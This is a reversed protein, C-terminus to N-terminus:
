AMLPIAGGMKPMNSCSGDEDGDIDPFMCKNNLAAHTLSKRWFQVAETSNYACTSPTDILYGDQGQMCWQVSTSSSLELTLTHSQPGAKVGPWDKIAIYLLVEDRRALPPCAGKKM